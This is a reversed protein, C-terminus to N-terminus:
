DYVNLQPSLPHLSRFVREGLRSVQCNDVSLQCHVTFVVIVECCSMLCCLQVADVSPSQKSDRKVVSKEM